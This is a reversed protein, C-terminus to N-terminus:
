GARGKESQTGMMERLVESGHYAARWAQFSQLGLTLSTQYKGSQLSGVKSCEANTHRLERLVRSV